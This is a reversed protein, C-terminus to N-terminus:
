DNKVEVKVNAKLNRNKIEIDELEVSEVGEIRMAEEIIYPELDVVNRLGGLIEGNFYPIGLMENYIFDGRFLKIATSVTQSIDYENEVIDLDGISNLQIDWDKDLKLSIM